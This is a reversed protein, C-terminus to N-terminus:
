FDRTLSLRGALGSSNSQWAVGGAEVFGDPTSQHTTQYLLELNLDLHAVPDWHFM